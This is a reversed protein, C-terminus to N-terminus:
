KIFLLKRSQQQTGVKLTYCYIGSSVMNGAADTGNWCVQKQGAAEDGAVLTKIEQGSQNYIILTVTTPEALYYKIWTIHNCPNPYNQSLAFARPQAPLESEVEAPYDLSLQMEINGVMASVQNWDSAQFIRGDGLTLYAQDSTISILPRFGKHKLLVYALVAQDKLGGKKFVIVQEATMIREPADIFISGAGINSKIWSFIAAEDKLTRALEKPRSSRLSAKLYLNPIKVYLSQYSYKALAFLESKQPNPFINAVLDDRNKLDYLPEITRDLINPTNGASKVVGEIITAQRLFLEPKIKFSRAETVSHNFFGFCNQQQILQQTALDVKQATTNNFFILEGEFDALTIAHQYNTNVWIQLITVNDPSTGLLVMLSIMLNALMYCEGMIKGTYISMAQMEAPLLKKYTPMASNEMTGWPDLGPLHAFVGSGQTHLLNKNMWDNIIVSKALTAPRKIFEHALSDALKYATPDLLCALTFPNVVRGNGPFLEFHWKNITRLIDNEQLAPENLITAKYEEKLAIEQSCLRTSLSLLLILIVDKQRM